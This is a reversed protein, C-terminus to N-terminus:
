EPIGFQGRAHLCVDIAQNGETNGDHLALETPAIYAEGPDIRVRLVPCQPHATFFGPIRRDWTKHDALGLADAAFPVYLLSRSGKGLNVGVRNTALGVPRFTDWGDVHLGTLLGTEIRPTVTVLGPDRAALGILGFGERTLLYEGLLDAADRNAVDVGQEDHANFANAYALAVRVLERHVSPPFRCVGVMRRMDWQGPPACLTELEAADLTRWPWMPVSAHSRYRPDDAPRVGNSVCLREGLPMLDSQVRVRVADREWEFGYRKLDNRGFSDIPTEMGPTEGWRADDLHFESAKGEPRSATM